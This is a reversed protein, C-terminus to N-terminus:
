FLGAGVALFYMVDHLPLLAALVSVCGDYQPLLDFSHTALESLVCQWATRIIDQMTHEHPCLWVLASALSNGDPVHAATAPHAVADIAISQWALLISRRTAAFVFRSNIFNSLLM